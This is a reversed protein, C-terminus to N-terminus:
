LHLLPRTFSLVLPRARYRELAAGGDVRQAHGGKGGVALPVALGAEGMVGYRRLLARTEVLMERISAASNDGFAGPHTADYRDFRELADPERGLRLLAAAFELALEPSRTEPEVTM